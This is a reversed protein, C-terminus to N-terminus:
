LAVEAIEDPHEALALAERLHGAARPDHLQSEAKGLELLLERREHLPPYEALARTLYAVAGAPAGRDTAHEAARRLTSAVWAEGLPATRMLHAAVRDVPMTAALLVRAAKLHRRGRRAPSIESEVAMRLIPHEFRCPAVSRLLGLRLRTGAAAAGVDVGLGALPGFGGL